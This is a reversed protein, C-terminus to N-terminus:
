SEDIIPPNPEIVYAMGGYYDWYCDIYRANDEITVNNYKIEFFRNMRGLPPGSHICVLKLSIGPEKKVIEIKGGLENLESDPTIKEIVIAIPIANKPIHLLFTSIGNYHTVSYYELSRM